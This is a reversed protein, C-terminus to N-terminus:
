LENVQCKHSNRSISSFNRTRMVFLINLYDFQHELTQQDYSERANVMYHKFKELNKSIHVRLLWRLDCLVQGIDFKILIDVLIVVSIVHFVLIIINCPINCPMMNQEIGPFTLVKIIFIVQLQSLWGRFKFIAWTM